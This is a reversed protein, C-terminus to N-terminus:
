RSFCRCRFVILYIDFFLKILFKGPAKIGPLLYMIDCLSQAQERRDADEIPSDHDPIVDQTINSILKELIKTLEEPLIGGMEKVAAGVISYLGTADPNENLDEM